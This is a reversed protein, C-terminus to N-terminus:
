DNGGFMDAVKRLPLLPHSFEIRCRYVHRQYILASVRGAGERQPREAPLWAPGSPRGGRQVISGSRIQNTRTQCGGGGGENM